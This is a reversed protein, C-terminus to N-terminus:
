KNKRKKNDLGVFALTSAALTGLISLSSAVGTKPNGKKPRAPIKVVEKAETEIVEEDIKKSVETTEEDNKTKVVPKDKNEM